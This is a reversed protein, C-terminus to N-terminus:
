AYLHSSHYTKPRNMKINGLSMFSLGFPFRKKLEIAAAQHEGNSQKM